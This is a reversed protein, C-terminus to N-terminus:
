YQILYLLCRLIILGDALLHFWTDKLRNKFFLFYYILVSGMFAYEFQEIALYAVFFTYSLCLVTIFIKPPVFRAWTIIKDKEDQKKDKYDFPLTLLLIFLFCEVFHVWYIKSFLLTCLSAWVFAVILTKLFPIKRLGFNFSKQEYLGVLSISLVLPWLRQAMTFEKITFGVAIVAMIRFFWPSKLYLLSSPSPETTKYNPSIRLFNYATFSGFFLFLPTFLSFNEKTKLAYIFFLLAPCFSIYINSYVIFNFFKTM